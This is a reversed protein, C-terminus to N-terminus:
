KFIERFFGLFQLMQVKGSHLTSKEQSRPGPENSSLNLQWMLTQTTSERCRLRWLEPAGIPRPASAARCFTRLCDGDTLYPLGQEGMLLEGGESWRERMQTPIKLALGLLPEVETAQDANGAREQGPAARRQRKM